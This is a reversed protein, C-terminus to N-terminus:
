ALTNNKTQKYCLFPSKNISYQVTINKIIAIIAAINPKPPMAETAAPNAFIAKTTKKTNNIIEPIILIILFFYSYFTKILIVILQTGTEQLDQLRM